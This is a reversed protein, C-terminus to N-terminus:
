HLLVPNNCCSTPVAPWMLEQQRSRRGHADVYVGVGSFCLLFEKSSVSVACLADLGLQCVFGLTPDELHLLSVPAAEGHLSYRAFGGQYGVVLREGLLAMWQVSAPAQIERLKRHRTRGRSLEYCIVQRKMAVCLCVLAGRRLPGSALAQCGRTEPLKHFDVERGDLASMPFLRVHRNRGSIVALLQESPLREIHHVKKNDGVRIIESSPPCGPSALAAPVPAAPLRFQLVDVFSM